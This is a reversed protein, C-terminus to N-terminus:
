ERYRRCMPVSQSETLGFRPAPSAAPRTGCWGLRRPRAPQSVAISLTPTSDSRPDTVRLLTAQFLLKRVLQVREVRSVISRSVSGRESQSVQEYGQPNAQRM